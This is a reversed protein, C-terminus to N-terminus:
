QWARHSERGGIRKPLAALVGVTETGNRPERYEATLRLGRVHESHGTAIIEHAISARQAYSSASSRPAWVETRVVSDRRSVSVRLNGSEVM